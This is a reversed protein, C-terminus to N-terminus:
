SLPRSAMTWLPCLQTHHATHRGSGLELASCPARPGQTADKCGMGTDDGPYAAADETVVAAVVVGHALVTALLLAAAPGAEPLQALAGARGVAAARAGALPLGAGRSGRGLGGSALTLEGVAETGRPWGGWRGM